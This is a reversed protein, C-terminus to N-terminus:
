CFPKADSLVACKASLYTSIDINCDKTQGSALQFSRDDIRSAFVRVNVKLGVSVTLQFLGFLVM